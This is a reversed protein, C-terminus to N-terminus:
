DMAVRIEAKLIVHPKGQASRNRDGFKGKKM